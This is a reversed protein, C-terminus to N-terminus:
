PLVALGISVGFWGLNYDLPVEVDSGTGDARWYRRTHNLAQLAYQAEVVLGFFSFTRIVLGLGMGVRLGTGGNMSELVVERTGRAPADSLSYSLPVFSYLSAGGTPGPLDALTFTPAVGVDYAVRWGDGTVRALETVWSARHVFGRAGFRGYLRKDYFLAYGTGGEFDGEADESYRGDDVRARFQYLGYTGISLAL